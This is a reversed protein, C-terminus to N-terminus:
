LWRFRPGCTLAVVSAAASEVAAPGPGVAGRPRSLLPRGWRVRGQRWGSGSRRGAGARFRDAFHLRTRCVRLPWCHPRLGRYARSTLPPPPCACRGRRLRGPLAADLDHLIARRAHLSRRALAVSAPSVVVCGSCPPHWGGQVGRLRHQRLGPRSSSPVFRPYRSGDTGRTQPPPGRGFTGPQQAPTSHPLRQRMSRVFPLHGTSL